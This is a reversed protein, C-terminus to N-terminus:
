SLAPVQIHEPPLGNRAREIMTEYARELNRAFRPTDFL